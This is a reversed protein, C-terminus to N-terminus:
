YPYSAMYESTHRDNVLTLSEGEEGEVLGATSDRMAWKSGDYRITSALAEVIMHGEATTVVDANTDFTTGLVINVESLFEQSTM